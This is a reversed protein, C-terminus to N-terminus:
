HHHPKDFGRKEIPSRAAFFVKEGRTIRSIEAIGLV